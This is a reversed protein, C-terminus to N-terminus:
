MWYIRDKKMWVKGPHVCQIKTKVNYFSTIATEVDDLKKFFFFHFYSVSVWLDGYDCSEQKSRGLFLSTSFVCSFIALRWAILTSISINCSPLLLACLTKSLNKPSSVKPFNKVQDNSWNYWEHLWLCPCFVAPQVMVTFLELAVWAASNNLYIFFIYICM